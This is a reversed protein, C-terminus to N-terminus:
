LIQKKLYLLKNVDNDSKKSNNLNSCSNADIYCESALLGLRQYNNKIENVISCPMNRPLRVSFVAGNSKNNTTNSKVQARYNNGCNHKLQKSNQIRSYKGSLPAWIKIQRLRTNKGQQYTEKIELVLKDTKLYKPSKRKEFIKKSCNSHNTDFNVRKGFNSNILQKSHPKLEINFWGRPPPSKADFIKEYVLENCYNSTKAYICIHKPTFSEDLCFDSYISISAIKEKRHFLVEIRHNGM